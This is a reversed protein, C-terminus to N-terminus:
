DPDPRVPRRPEQWLGTHSSAVRSPTHKVYDKAVSVESPCGTTTEAPQASVKICLTHQKRHQQAPFIPPAPGCRPCLHLGTDGREVMHCCESTQPRM